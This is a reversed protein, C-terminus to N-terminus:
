RKASGKKRPSLRRAKRGADYALAIDRFLKRHVQDPVAPTPMMRYLVVTKKLSDLYTRCEPCGDLHKKITKCRPSDMNQDLNECIFRYVRRCSQQHSM